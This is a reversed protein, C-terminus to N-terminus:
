LLADAWINRGWAQAYKGELDNPASSLGGAGQMPCAYDGTLLSRVMRSMTMEGIGRLPWAPAPVQYGHLSASVLRLPAPASRLLRAFCIGFEQIRFLNDVPVHSQM